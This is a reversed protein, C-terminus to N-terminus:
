KIFEDMAVQAVARWADAQKTKSEDTFFEESGPLKDGNFAKGGVEVCYRDYMKRALGEKNYMPKSDAVQVGFPKLNKNIRITNESVTQVSNSM